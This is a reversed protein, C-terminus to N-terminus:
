ESKGFFFFNQGRVSIISFRSQQGFRIFNHCTFDTKKAAFRDLEIQINRSLQFMPSGVFGMGCQERREM